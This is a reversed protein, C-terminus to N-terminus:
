GFNKVSLRAAKTKERRHSRDRNRRSGYYEKCWYKPDKRKQVVKKEKKRASRSWFYIKMTLMRRIVRMCLGFRKAM